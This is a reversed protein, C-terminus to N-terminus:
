RASEPKVGRRAAMRRGLGALQGASLVQEARDFVEAEEIAIHEAYPARFRAASAAFAVPDTAPSLGTLAAELETWADAMAAHDRELRALTQDLAPDARLLLPFLDVEEDEHHHRGATSFYRVIEDAAARAAPDAGTERLHGALRELTALYRQIRGHCARLLAIPQDFGPAPKPLM